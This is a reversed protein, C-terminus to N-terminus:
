AAKDLEPHDHMQVELPHYIVPYGLAYFDDARMWGLIHVTAEEALDLNVVKMFVFFHAYGPLLIRERPEDPEALHVALTKSRLNRGNSKIFETLEDPPLLQAIVDVPLDIDPVTVTAIIITGKIDTFMTDKVKHTVTKRRILPLLNKRSKGTQM